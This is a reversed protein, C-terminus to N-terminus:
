TSATVNAPATMACSGSPAEAVVASWGAQAVSADSFFRFTVAGSANGATARVVGAGANNPATAGNGTGILPAAANVGDHAYLYDFSGETQYASFTVQIKAGATGPAFTVTSNAISNSYNAASGGNDFYNFSCTSPPAITFTTSGSTPHNVNVQAFLSASFVMGLLLAWLTINRKKM